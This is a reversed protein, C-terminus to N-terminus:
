EAGGSSAKRYVHELDIEEAAFRSIQFGAAVIKSLIAAAAEENGEFEFSITVDRREINRVGEVQKLQEELRVADKLVRLTYRRGSVTAAQSYKELVGGAGTLPGFEILRGNQVIAMHDCFDALEKLVHSSVVVTKGLYQQYRLFDRLETRAVPDLGSAPEDLFVVDPDHLFSKAVGLRQRMGRSLTGVRAARKDALGLRELFDSIRARATDMDLGYAKAFFLLYHEVAMDEYLQFAEPLYGILRRVGISDKVLDRGGVWARGRSPSLLTCLMRMTTTKGAGNPGALACVAGRPITFTLNDVAVFSGYYRTLNECAIM